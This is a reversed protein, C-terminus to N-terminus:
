IIKLKNILKEHYKKSIPIDKSLVTVLNTEIKSIYDLNVIYSKHTRFFKKDDLSNTIFDMTGRIIECKKETHIELYNGDSKIWLIDDVNVKSYRYKDKVFLAGKIIIPSENVENSDHLHNIQFLALEITTFLQETTFPKVLYNIPKTKKARDLINSDAYSTTFIFPIQYDKKIKEALEIGDKPGNLNIDILILDPKDKELINIAENYNLADGIVEYGMKILMNSLDKSIIVEDEVILIKIM